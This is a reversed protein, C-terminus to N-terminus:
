YERRQGPRAQGVSTNGITFTQTCTANQYHMYDIGITITTAVSGDLTLGSADARPPGDLMDGAVGWAM